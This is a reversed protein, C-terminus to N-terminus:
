PQRFPKCNRANIQQGCILCRPRETQLRAVTRREPRKGKTTLAVIEDRDLGIDGFIKLLTKQAIPKAEEKM